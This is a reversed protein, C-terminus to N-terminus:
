GRGSVKTVRLIVRVTARIASTFGVPQQDAVESRATVPAEGAVVGARKLRDPTVRSGIVEDDRAALAVRDGVEDRGREPTDADGVPM